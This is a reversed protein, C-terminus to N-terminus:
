VAPTSDDTPSEEPHAARMAAECADRPLKELLGVLDRTTHIIASFAGLPGDAPAPPDCKCVECSRAVAAELAEFHERKVSWKSPKRGSGGIERGGARDVVLIEGLEFVTTRAALVMGPAAPQLVNCQEIYLPAVAALNGRPDEGAMWDPVETIVCLEAM